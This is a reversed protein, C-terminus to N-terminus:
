KRIVEGLFTSVEFTLNTDPPEFLPIDLMNLLRTVLLIRRGKKLDFSPIFYGSVMWFTVSNMIFIEFKTFHGTRFFTPIYTSRM